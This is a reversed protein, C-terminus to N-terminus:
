NRLDACVCGERKKVEIVRYINDSADVTLLKGSLPSHKGTLIKIAEMAQISGIIGVMPSISPVPAPASAAPLLCELCPTMGPIVVTVQGIMAEAGGHVLPIRNRLAYRNLSIRSVRNDLCDLIVDCGDMASVTDDDMTMRLEKVEAEPDIRKIWEASLETKRKGIDKESYVFQRNLNSIEVTQPDAIIFNKIGASALHTIANCGLGGLGIVAVVSSELRKQGDAGIVSIQRRYRTM